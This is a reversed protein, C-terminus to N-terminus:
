LLISLEGVSSSRDSRLRCTRGDKDEAAGENPHRVTRHVQAHGDGQGTHLRCRGKWVRGAGPGAPINDSFRAFYLFYLFDPLQSESLTIQRLDELKIVRDIHHNFLLWILNLSM